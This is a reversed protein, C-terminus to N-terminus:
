SATMALHPAIAASEFVETGDQAPAAHLAGCHECTDRTVVRRKHCSPCAIRAPWEQLVLMLVLGAWGFLFGCLAWGFRRSRSFAYRRALLFCGLASAAASLLILLIYALILGSTPQTAPSLTSAMTATGPVYYQIGELYDILSCKETSRQARARARMYRSTEVLTAVETMPTALGYLAQAYSSAPYPFPPVARRALEHGAADYELLYSPETRYEEPERLWYRLDYRVYYREPDKFKGIFIPGYKESSFARPMSALRRGDETVVHFAQNTSVVLAERHAEEDNWWRAANVTEGPASTFLRRISRRVFDVCYVGDPFALDESSLGQGRNTAYRLEGPFRRGPPQGAPTFGDPGFSGLSHHYHTDFGVLRGQAQDYFWRENAPRTRNSCEVYFRGTHRYGSHRPWELFGSNDRWRETKPDLENGDGDRLGILGHGEQDTSYLVRRHDDVDVQYHMGPDLWEGLRQKGMMSLILLGLLMTAGLSVKAFWPLPAYAGGTCFSGWAAVGVFLGVIAIAVLAEWFEPLAWVLYSVFFAAALALGRSGYWRAERQAVLMGAFYYVLGSLIDALWPLSTRWHYPAALNGPTAYWGEVSLFPIGLAVVYLVVGALVKAVFVRSPTLPRHLLVSRKDGHGEFFVQLFGIGLGFVVATLCLFYATTSGPMPQTPKDILFVLLIVVSPLPLWKVNERVEKWILSNM